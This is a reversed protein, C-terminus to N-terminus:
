TTEKSPLESREPYNFEVVWYDGGQDRWRRFQDFSYDGFKKRGSPPILKHNAYMYAFGETEYDEDPMDIIDQKYPVCTLQIVEIREGRAQLSRNYAQILDGNRFCWAHHDKWQRRTKTKAHAIIAPSTWGFSIIRM